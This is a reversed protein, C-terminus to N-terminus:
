LTLLECHHPLGKNKDHGLIISRIQVYLYLILSKFTHLIIIIIIKKKCLCTINQKSHMEGYDKYIVLKLFLKKEEHINIEVRCMEPLWTSM